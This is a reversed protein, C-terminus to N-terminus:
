KSVRASLGLLIRECEVAIDIVIAGASPLDSIAGV